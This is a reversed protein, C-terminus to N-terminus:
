APRAQARAESREAPGLAAEASPCVMVPDSGRRLLHRGPSGAMAERFPGRRSPGVVLLCAREICALRRLQPGVPGTVVRTAPAGHALSALQSALEDLTDGRRTLRESTSPILGPPPAGIGPAVPM